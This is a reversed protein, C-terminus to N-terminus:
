QTTAGKVCRNPCITCSWLFDELKSLCWGSTLAWRPGRSHALYVWRGLLTSLSFHEIWTCVTLHLRSLIANAAYIFRMWPLHNLVTEPLRDLHDANGFWFVWLTINSYALADMIKMVTSEWCSSTICQLINVLESSCTFIKNSGFLDNIFKTWKATLMPILWGVVYLLAEIVLYDLYLRFFSCSFFM